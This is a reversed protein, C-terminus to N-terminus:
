TLVATRSYAVFLDPLNEIRRKPMVSCLLNIAKQTVRVPTEHLYKLALLGGDIFCHGSDLHVREM